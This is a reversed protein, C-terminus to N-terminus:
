DNFYGKKKYPASSKFQDLLSKFGQIDSPLNLTIASYYIPFCTITCSGSYVHQIGSKDNWIYVSSNEVNHFQDQKGHRKILSQHFSNHLFYNPLKAFFDLSQGRYVQVFVPFAYRNAKLYYKLIQIGNINDLEEGKGFTKEIAESSSGPQFLKLKDLTFNYDPIEVKAQLCISFLICFLFNLFKTWM